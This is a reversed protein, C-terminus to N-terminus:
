SDVTLYQEHALFINRSGPPIFIWGLEQLRVLLNSISVGLEDRMQYLHSWKNLQKGERKETLITRPMLLCRAFYQAQWEIAMIKDHEPSNRCIFPESPFLQLPFSPSLKDIESQNIHLIWHGIEHTITSEIFGPPKSLIDENIEILRETPLIRAAIGGQEDPPIQDWVVGLDLFDAVISAEFPWQPSFKPSSEMALLLDNARTEILEKPYFRYPKFIDM